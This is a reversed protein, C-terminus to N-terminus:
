NVEILFYSVVSTDAANDSNITFSTGATLTYTLNGATGGITKRSHMVLTNATVSPNAVTVTGAVLTANGARQHPGSQVSLQANTTMTTLGASNISIRQVLANAGSGAGGVPATSFILSGGAGSGTSRGATLSLNGGAFNAGVADAGHLETSQGAGSAADVWLQATYASDRCFIVDRNLGLMYRGLDGAAWFDGYSGAGTHRPEVVIGYDIAPANGTPTAIRISNNAPVTGNNALGIYAGYNTRLTGSRVTPVIYAGYVNTVQGSAGGAFDPMFQFGAVHGMFYTNTFRVRMDYSNHAYGANTRGAVSSDSYTHSNTAAVGPQSVVDRAAMFVSDISRTVNDGVRVSETYSRPNGTVDVYCRDLALLNSGYISAWPYGAGLMSPSLFGIPSFDGMNGVDVTQFFWSSNSAQITMFDGPTNLLGSGNENTLIISGGIRLISSPASDWRLMPLSGFAGADNLQIEGSAGAPTAGATSNSICVRGDGDYHFTIGNTPRLNAKFFNSHSAATRYTGVQYQVGRLTAAAHLSSPILLLCFLILKNM